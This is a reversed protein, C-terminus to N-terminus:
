YFPQSLFIMKRQQAALVFSIIEREFKYVVSAFLTSELLFFLAKYLHEALQGFFSVKDEQIMRYCM